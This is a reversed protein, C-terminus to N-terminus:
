TMALERDVGLSTAPAVASRPGIRHTLLNSAKPRVEDGGESAKSGKLDGHAAERLAAVLDLEVLAGVVKRAVVKLEPMEDGAPAARAPGLFFALGLAEVIERHLDTPEIADGIREDDRAAVHPEERERVRPPEAGGLGCVEDDKVRRRPGYRPP